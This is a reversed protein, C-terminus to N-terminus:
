LVKNINKLQVERMRFDSILTEKASELDLKELELSKLSSKLQEM